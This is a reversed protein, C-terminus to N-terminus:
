DAAMRKIKELDDAIVKRAHWLDYEQQMNLWHEASNGFYSAVRLAM